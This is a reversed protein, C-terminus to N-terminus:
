LNQQNERIEQIPLRNAIIMSRRNEVGGQTLSLNVTKALALNGVAEQLPQGQLSADQINITVTFAPNAPREETDNSNWLERAEFDFLFESPYNELEDFPTNELERTLQQVIDAEINNRVANQYTSMGIPLLAIVSLFGVAVIGLALATEVLSFGPGRSRQFRKRSPPLSM